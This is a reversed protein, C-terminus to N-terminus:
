ASMPQALRTLATVAPQQDPRFLSWGVSIGLLDAVGGMTLGLQRYRHNASMLFPEPDAGALLLSELLAGDVRLTQLGDRGCRRLATTDEVTCMLRAMALYLRARTDLGLQLAERFAPLAVQFVAPLGQRAEDVIGGARYRARVSAGVTGGPLRSAFLRSAASSVARMVALPTAGPGATHAGALLLGGVFIAGRHTNSAFHCLMRQETLVGLDRLVEVPAGDDLAKQCDAFYGRLLAVSRQMLSYDLDAHSGNDRRDVLGPKPTLDLELALGDALAEPLRM